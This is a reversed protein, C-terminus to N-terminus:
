TSVLNKPPSESVHQISIEVRFVVPSESEVTRANLGGSSETFGFICMLPVTLVTNIDMKGSDERENKM